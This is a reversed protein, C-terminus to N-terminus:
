AGANSLALQQARLRKIEQEVTDPEAGGDDVRARGNAGLHQVPDLNRNLQLLAAAVRIRPM